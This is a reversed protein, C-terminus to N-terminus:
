TFVFMRRVEDDLSDNNYVDKLHEATLLDGTRDRDTKKQKSVLFWYGLSVALIVILVKWM